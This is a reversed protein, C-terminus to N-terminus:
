AQQARFGSTPIGENGIKSPEERRLLALLQKSAKPRQKQTFSRLYQGLKRVHKNSASLRGSTVAPFAEVNKVLMTPTSDRETVLCDQHRSRATQHLNPGSWKAAM